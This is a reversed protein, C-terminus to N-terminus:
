PELKVATRGVRMVPYGTGEQILGAFFYLYPYSNDLIHDIRIYGTVTVREGPQLDRGFGWRFPYRRPAGAANAEWDVGVRWVGAREPYRHGEVSAYTDDLTYMYGPDPGQTRLTVSGTNVVTVAVQLTQGIRLERPLFTVAEITAQARASGAIRFAVSRATRNGDDDEAIVQFRYDGDVVPIDLPDRGRFKFSQLGAPLRPCDALAVRGRPGEVYVRVSSERSLRFRLVAEDDVDDDNPTVLQPEVAVDDIYVPPDGRVVVRLPGSRELVSGDELEARFDYTYDGSPLARRELPGLDPREVSTSLQFVHSGASRLEGRRVFYQRGGSDWLVFSVRGQSPLVYRVEVPRGAMLTDSSLQLSFGADIPACSAFLLLAPLLLMFESKM